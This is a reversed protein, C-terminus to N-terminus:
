DSKIPILSDFPNTSPTPDPITPTPDSNTPTSDSATSNSDIATYDSDPITSDPPTPDSPTSDTPDPLIPPLFLDSFLTIVWNKYAPISLDAVKLSFTCIFFNTNIQEQYQHIVDTFLHNIDGNKTYMLELDTISQGNDQLISIIQDFYPKKQLHYEDKVIETSLSLHSVIGHQLLQESLSRILERHGTITFVLKFLYDPLPTPLLTSKSILPDKPSPLACIQINWSKLFMNDHSFYSLFEDILIQINDNM